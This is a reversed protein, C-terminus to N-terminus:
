RSQGCMARLEKKVRRAVEGRWGIANTLFCGVVSYGASDAGYGGRINSIEKMNLLAEKAGKNKINKWDSEIEFAIDRLKRM